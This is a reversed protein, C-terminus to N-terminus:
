EAELCDVDIQGIKEALAGLANFGAFDRNITNIMEKM